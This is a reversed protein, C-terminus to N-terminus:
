PHSGVLGFNVDHVRCDQWDSMYPPNASIAGWPRSSMGQYQSIEDGEGAGKVSGFGFFALHNWWHRKAKVSPVEKGFELGPSVELHSAGVELAVGITSPPLNTSVVPDAACLQPAVLLGLLFIITRM